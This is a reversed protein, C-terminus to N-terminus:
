CLLLKRNTCHLIRNMYALWSERQEFQNKSLVIRYKLLCHLHVGLKKSRLRQRVITKSSERKYRWVKVRSSKCRHGLLHLLYSFRHCSGLLLFAVLLLLTVLLLPLDWRGGLHRSQEALQWWSLGLLVLLARRLSEFSFTTLKRKRRTLKHYIYRHHSTCLSALSDTTGAM